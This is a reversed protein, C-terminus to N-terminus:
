GLIRKLDKYSIHIIRAFQGLNYGARKKLEMCVKVRQEVSLLDIDEEGFFKESIESAIKIVDGDPLSIRDSYMESNVAEEVRQNLEFQYTRASGFIKEMRLYETYCGPWIMDNPLYTWDDPFDVRSNFRSYRERKSLSGITNLLSIQLSNDAYVLSASSWRYGGPLVNMRAAIPNRHVYVIKEVLKEKNPILWADYEWKKGKEGPEGHHGLWMETLIRYDNMFGMCDEYTGYLIFHVHNDMLCFCIVLVPHGKLAKLHCIGIRNMGAIFEKEDKFLVDDELGKTACHYYHKM